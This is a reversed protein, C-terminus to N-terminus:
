FLVFVEYYLVHTDLYFLSFMFSLKSSCFFSMRQYHVVERLKVDYYITFPISTASVQALLHVNSLYKTIFHSFSLKRGHGEDATSCLLCFSFLLHLPHFRSSNLLHKSWSHIPWTACAALHKAVPQIARTRDWTDSPHLNKKM